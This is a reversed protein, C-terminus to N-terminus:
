SAPSLHAKWSPPCVHGTAVKDGTPARPSARMNGQARPASSPLAFPLSFWMSTRKVLQTALLTHNNIVTTSRGYITTKGWCHLQHPSQFSRM